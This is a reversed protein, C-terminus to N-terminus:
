DDERFYHVLAQTARPWTYQAIEAVGAYALRIRCGEDKLLMLLNSAMRGVDKPPSLLSTKGHIAYEHGGIDTLVTACGCQMAEAPPLAWGEAWSPSIFIAAENYLQRLRSKSPLQEYRVWEPLEGRAPAAVGFLTVEIDPVEERVSTLAALGEKTGKWDLHQYLMLLKKAHRAEPLVDVGFREFDLGNPIYCSPEGLSAAIDGLWRSIVIKNLPARWTNLLRERDGFWDEFHQVLYFKKGRNAPYRAVWEATEWATAVVVDAKPVFCPTLSPAWRVNIRSDLAFWSHSLYTRRLGLLLYKPINRYWKDNKGVGLYLGAPEVISVEHGLAVLHNAYEFVVKTGGVPRQGGFPLVFTIKM